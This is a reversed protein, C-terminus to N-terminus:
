KIYSLLQLIQLRALSGCRTAAITLFYKDSAALSPLILTLCFTILYRGGAAVWGLFPSWIGVM